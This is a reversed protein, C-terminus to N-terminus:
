RASFISMWSRRFVALDTDLVRARQTLGANNLLVDVRGFRDLVSVAAASVAAQDTVDNPIVFIERPGKLGDLDDAVRQLDADNRASLVLHAGEAHSQRAAAEGIVSSAGTM